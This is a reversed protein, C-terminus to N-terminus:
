YRSSGPVRYAQVGQARGSRVATGARVQADSRAAATALLVGGALGMAVGLVEGRSIPQRLVLSLLALFLPTASVFLLSHTVSTAQLSYVWTGFHLALSTGGAALLPAASPLRARDHPPM